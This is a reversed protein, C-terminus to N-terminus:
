ECIIRENLEAVYKRLLEYDMIMFYSSESESFLIEIKNKVAFRRSFLIIDKISNCNRIIWKIFKKVKGRIYDENNYTIIIEMSVEDVFSFRDFGKEKM